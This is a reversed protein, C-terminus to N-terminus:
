IATIEKNSSDFGREKRLFSDQKYKGLGHRKRIEEHFYETATLFCM